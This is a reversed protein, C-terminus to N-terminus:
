LSTKVKEGQTNLITVNLPINKGSQTIASSVYKELGSCCPVEMRVVLISRIPHSSFIAALKESYDINDLKPCAILTIRGSMFDKHFDACAFASCDAAILIDANDFYSATVPVLKLQVPWQRLASSHSEQSINKKDATPLLKAHSGACGCPLPSLLDKRDTTDSQLSAHHHHPATATYEREKLHATVAKEDFPAAPREEFTIANEPCAPLCNGLGDCYDDRLLHAKGNTIIIAGEHCAEVCLGCGNCKNQDIHIIQRPTYM